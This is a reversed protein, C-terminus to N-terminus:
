KSTPQLLLTKFILDKMINQLHLLNIICCFAIYKSHSLIEVVKKFLKIIMYIMQMNASDVCNKYLM